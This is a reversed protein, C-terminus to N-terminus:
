LRHAAVLPRSLHRRAFGLTEALWEEREGPFRAKRTSIEAVVGDFGSAALQQLAEACGQKGRGQKGRGQALHEDRGSGSGDSLHVHRLSDGLAKISEV